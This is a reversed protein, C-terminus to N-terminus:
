SYLSNQKAWDITRKIGEKIDVYNTKGFESEVREMSLVEAVLTGKMASNPKGLYIPVDCYEGIIDALKAITIKDQGGINYVSNKGFLIIKWILEVADSVYIFAKEAKGDDMLRIEKNTIASRIFTNMVRLDNPRTGPGYAMALRVSKTDIDNTCYASCIAEGCKKGEIYCARPHNPSSNGINDEKFPTEDLGTYVASSSMFLFKGPHNLKEVLKFLTYTNIKLTNVAENMFRMPQGYGAADIIIDFSPLANLFVDDTLEGKLVRIWDSERAFELQIPLDGRTVVSLEVKSNTTEVFQKISYVIHTGILGSAGVILIKKGSIGNLEVNKIVNNADNILIQNKNM